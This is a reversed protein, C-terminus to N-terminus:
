GAMVGSGFGANDYRILVMEMSQSVCERRWIRVREDRGKGIEREVVGLSWGGIVVV